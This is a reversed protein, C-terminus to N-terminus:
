QAKERVKNTQKVHKRRRAIARKNYVSEMYTIWKDGRKMREEKPMTSKMDNLKASTYYICERMFDLHCANPNIMYYKFTRVKGNVLKRLKQPKQLMKIEDNNLVRLKNNYDPIVYYRKNYARQKADAMAIAFKLKVGELKLKFFDLLEM